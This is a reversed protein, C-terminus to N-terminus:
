GVLMNRTNEVRAKTRRFKMYLGVGIIGVIGGVILGVKIKDGAPTSPDPTNDYPDSNINQGAPKQSPYKNRHGYLPNRDSSVNFQESKMM